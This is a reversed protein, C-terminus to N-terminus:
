NDLKSGNQTFIHPLSIPVDTEGSSSPPNRKVLQRNAKGSCERHRQKRPLRRLNRHFAALSEDTVHRGEDSCPIM